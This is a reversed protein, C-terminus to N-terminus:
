PSSGAVWHRRAWACVRAFMELRHAIVTFTHDALPYHAVEAVRRLEPQTFAEFLQGAANYREEASSTYVFLLRLDRRAFAALDRGVTEASPDVKEFIAEREDVLAERDMAEPSARGIVRLLGAAKRGAAGLVREPSLARYFMRRLRYRPTPIAYGDIFVAGRVRPDAVAIHHANIAGACLGLFVFSERGRLKKLHDMADGADEVARQEYAPQDRRAESDGLGSQDYRLVDLGLAALRRALEVGMRFPGVRHVLGSNLLIVAPSGRDISGGPSLVGVLNREKGFTVVKEIM